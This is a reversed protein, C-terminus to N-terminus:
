RAQNELLWFLRDQLLGNLITCDVRAKPSHSSSLEQLVYPWVYPKDRAENILPLMQNRRAYCALDANHVVGCNISVDV